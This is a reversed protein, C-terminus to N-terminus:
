KRMWRYIDPRVERAIEEVKDEEKEEILGQGGEEVISIYQM